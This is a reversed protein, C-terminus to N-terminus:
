TAILNQNQNQNQALRDPAHYLSVRCAQRLAYVPVTSYMCAKSYDSVLSRHLCFRRVRFRRANTSGISAPEHGHLQSQSHHLLPHDPPSQLILHRSETPSNPPALCTATAGLTTNSLGGLSLVSSSCCALSAMHLRERFPFCVLLLPRLSSPPIM